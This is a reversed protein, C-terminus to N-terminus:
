PHTQVREAILIPEVSPNLHSIDFLTCRGPLEPPKIGQHSSWAHASVQSIFRAAAWLCPAPNRDLRHSLRRGRWSWVSGEDWHWTSVGVFMRVSVRNGTLRLAQEM